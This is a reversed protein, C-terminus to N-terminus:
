SAYHYHLPTSDSLLSGAGAAAGAQYNFDVVQMHEAALSINDTLSGSVLTGVATLASTLSHTDYSNRAAFLTLGGVYLAAGYQQVLRSNQLTNELVLLKHHSVSVVMVTNSAMLCWVNSEKMYELCKLATTLSDFVTVTSGSSMPLAVPDNPHAPAAVPSGNVYLPAVSTSFSSAQLLAM